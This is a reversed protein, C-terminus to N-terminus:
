QQGDKEAFKVKLDAMSKKIELVDQLQVRVTKEFGKFNDIENKCKELDDRLVINEQRLNVIEELRRIQEDHIRLMSMVDSPTFSADGNGITIMYCCFFGCLHYFLNMSRHFGCM